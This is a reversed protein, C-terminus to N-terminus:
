VPELAPLHRVDERGRRLDVVILDVRVSRPYIDAAVGDGNRVAALARYLRAVKSRNVKSEPSGYKDSRQSRVEVVVLTSPPGPDVALIDVEVGDLHINRAVVRWGHGILYGVAATEGETGTRQRYQYM